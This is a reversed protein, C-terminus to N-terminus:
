GTCTDTLMQYICHSVLGSCRGGARGGCVVASLRNLHGDVDSLQLAVGPQRM